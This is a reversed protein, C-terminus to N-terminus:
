GFFLGSLDTLHSTQMQRCKVFVILATNARKWFIWESHSYQAHTSDLIIFFVEPHIGHSGLSKGKNMKLLIQKLGEHSLPGGLLSAEETSVATDTYM